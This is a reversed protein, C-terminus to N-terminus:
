YTVVELGPVRSFDQANRTVVPAADVLAATAILLDMAGIRQGARELTALVRGYLAGEAVPRAAVGAAIYGPSYHYVAPTALRKISMSSFARAAACASSPVFVRFSVTLSARRRAAGARFRRTPLARAVRALALNCSRLLAQRQRVEDVGAHQSSKAVGLYTRGDLGEGAPAPDAPSTDRIELDPERGPVQALPGPQGRRKGGEGKHFRVSGVQSPGALNLPQQSGASQATPLHGVKQDGRGGLLIAEDHEVVVPVEVQDSSNGALRTFPHHRRATDVSAGTGRSVEGPAGLGAKVRITAVSALMM